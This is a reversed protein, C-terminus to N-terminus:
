SKGVISLTKRTQIKGHVKVAKNVYEMIYRAEQMQRKICQLQENKTEYFNELIPILTNLHEVFGDIQFVEIPLATIYIKEPNLQPIGVMYEMFHLAQTHKEDTGHQLYYNSMHNVMNLADSLTIAGFSEFHNIMSPDKSM